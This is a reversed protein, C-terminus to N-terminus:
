RNTGYALHMDPFAAVLNQM